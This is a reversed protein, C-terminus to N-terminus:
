SSIIMFFSYFVYIFSERRNRQAPKQSAFTRTIGKEDVFLSRIGSSPSCSCRVVPYIADFILGYYHRLRRLANLLYINVHIERIVTSWSGASGFCVVFSSRTRYEGAIGPVEILSEM